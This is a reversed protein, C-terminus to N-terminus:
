RVVLKLMEEWAKAIQEKKAEPLGQVTAFLDRFREDVRSGYSGAAEKTLMGRIEEPASVLHAKLLLQDANLELAKALLRCVRPSPTRDGKEIQSVYMPTINECRHAVEKQTLGLAERARKIVDGFSDAASPAGHSKM